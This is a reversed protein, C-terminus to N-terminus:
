RLIKLGPIAAQLGAVGSDTVKTLYISANISLTIEKLQKLGELKHLGADTVQTGALNLKELSSLLSVHDMAADTLKACRMLNLDRLNTLGALDEV